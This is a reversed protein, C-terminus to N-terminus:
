NLPNAKGRTLGSDWKSNQDIPNAKGRTVGSEWSSVNANTASSDGTMDGGTDGDEQESMEEGYVDVDGGDSDFNYAPKIGLLSDIDFGVPENFQEPGGSEFDYASEVDSVDMDDSEIEKIKNKCTWTKDKCQQCVEETMLGKIREIEENLNMVIFIVHDVFYNNGNTKNENRDQGSTVM